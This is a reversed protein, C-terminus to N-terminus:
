FMWHYPVPVQKKSNDDASSIARETLTGFLAVIDLAGQAM